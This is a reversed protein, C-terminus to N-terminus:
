NREVDLTVGGRFYGWEDNGDAFVTFADDAVPPMAPGGNEVQLLRVTGFLLALRRDHQM